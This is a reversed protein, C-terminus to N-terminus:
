YNTRIDNDTVENKIVNVISPILSPKVDTKKRMNSKTDRNDHNHYQWFNLFHTRAKISAARSKPALWHSTNVFTISEM